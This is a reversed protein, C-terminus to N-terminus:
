HIQIVFNELRNKINKLPIVKSNLFLARVVFLNGNIRFHKSLYKLVQKGFVKTFTFASIVRWALDHIVHTPFRQNVIKNGVVGIDRLFVNPVINEVGFTKLIEFLLFAFTKRGALPFFQVIQQGIYLYAIRCATGSREKYTHEIHEYLEPYKQLWRRIRM